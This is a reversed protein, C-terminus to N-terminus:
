EDHYKYWVEVIEKKYMEALKLARKVDKVKMGHNYVLQSATKFKNSAQKISNNPRIKRM